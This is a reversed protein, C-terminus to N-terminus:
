RTSVRSQQSSILAMLYASSGLDSVLALELPVPLLLLSKLCEACAM